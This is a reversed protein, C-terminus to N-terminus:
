GFLRTMAADDLTEGSEEISVFRDGLKFVVKGGLQAFPLTDPYTKLLRFYTESGFAIAVPKHTDADFETDRWVGDADLVLTRGQINAQTAGVEAPAAVEAEQMSRISKSMQVAAEGSTQNFGADASPMGPRAQRSSVPRPAGPPPMMQDVAMMEDETVLYSTYPTVIGFEKALAIVEDKLEANEGHMRIEELLMGVRRQAWLRAVFDRDRESAPLDFGYRFTQERGNLMGTLQVKAAGPKRYRGAVILQGNKYLNALQGPSVAYTDAGDITLKLDTMVPFRVKDYFGGVREEINEEPSIYDAFAGSEAALGDLLRTNVDYGVGFAFVSVEHGNAGQINKRIAEENTEGASPLGDTLFVIMGRRSDDLQGLATKLAADINTGGRAELQDIFFLADEKSSAPMLTERFADVDSSFAVIGFRDQAGLRQVCYKLADRAQAIKDGAMSGSTDLVFVIDRPQVAGASLDVSPTLMLMFYGAKDRYPRHALLTAGVEANDRSIYLVFDRGDREGERDYRVEARRSNPRAIDVEHSPSYVTGIGKESRIKATILTHTTAPEDPREPPAPRDERMPMPRPMPIRGPGRAGLQGQLPYSFTVTAGEAPLTADYRLTITRQQGPPIPFVSARFTRHDVMELLAPDINKRVIAEYISRAEDAALLEGALEKGDVDMSFRSVQADKPLPFLFTGEIVGRSTNKFTHSVTVVAIQEDIAADVTHETLSIPTFQYDPGVILGQAMGARVFVLTFLALAIPRFSM